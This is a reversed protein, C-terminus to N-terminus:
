PRVVQARLFGKGPLGDSGNLSFSVYQYGAPLTPLGPNILPVPTVTATWHILDTSGQIAYNLGDVTADSVAPNGPTSFTVGNRVAITLIMEKATGADNSDAQIGFVFGKNASDAPNGGFAFEELNTAGDGDPDDSPGQKDAPIAFAPTQIWATFADAAAATSINVYSGSQAGAVNAGKITADYDITWTKGAFNFTSDEALAVSNYTLMGGNFLGAAYNFLSFVTGGAFTGSGLNALNLAVQSGLSLAGNIIHLDAGASAAVGSNVQYNYTSNNAFTVAGSTLTGITAGGPSVSGSVNLTGAITGTGGITAGAAVSVIGSGTNAGNILLTGNNVTTTGGYPNNGSLTIQGAGVKTLSVTASGNSIAGAFNGGGADGTGITLMPTGAASSTLSGGSGTFNGVVQSTGNLDLVGGTNITL